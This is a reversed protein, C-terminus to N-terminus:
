GVGSFFHDISIETAVLVSLTKYLNEYRWIRCLYAIGM